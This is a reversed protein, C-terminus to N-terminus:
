SADHWLNDGAMTRKRSKMVSTLSITSRTYRRAMLERRVRGIRMEKEKKSIYGGM